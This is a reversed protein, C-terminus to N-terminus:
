QASDPLPRVAREIDRFLDRDLGSIREEPRRKRSTIRVQNLPLPRGPLEEQVGRVVIAEFSEIGNNLSFLSRTNGEIAVYHDDVVELVPPTIISVGGNRLQISTASFLPRSHENFADVLTAIQHYRFARVFRSILLVKRVEVPEMRLTVRPSRYQRVNQKLLDIVRQPSEVVLEPPQIPDRNEPLHGRLRDYISSLALADGTATYLKAIPAYDLHEDSFVLACSTIDAASDIMIGKFPLAPGEILEVGMDRMLQRRQLEKSARTPDDAVPLCFCYLRIRQRLWYLVSPFLDWFWKTDPFSVIAQRRVATLQETIQLYAQHEDLLPENRAGLGVTGLLEKRIFSGAAAEGSAILTNVTEADMRDMDTAKLTGTPIFITAADSNFRLQVDTAGDVAISVLRTVYEMADAPRQNPEDSELAFCLIRRDREPGDRELFVFHPLNSVLGGDVLFTAGEEVPQYFFPLSCSCRVAHAVSAAPTHKPSWIRPRMTTLDSAVVYLAMPLEDFQIPRSRKCQLLVQLQKEIWESIPESTYKGGKLAASIVAGREGGCKLWASEWLSQKGKFLATVAPRLMKKFDLSRVESLLHNPEAGAAILAAVM